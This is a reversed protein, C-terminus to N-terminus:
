KSEIGLTELMQEYTMAGIQKDTIVGNEDLFYNIPTARVLYKYTVERNSDLLVPFDYNNKNIFDLVTNKAEGLNVTVVTIDSHNLYLKQLDPMEQRCYYCWTAWFNILVKKGRLDNLTVKEGALNKLSFDPAMQGVETGVEIEEARVLDDLYGKQYSISGVVLLILGFIVFLNKKNM